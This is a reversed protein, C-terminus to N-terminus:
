GAWLDAFSVGHALLCGQMYRSITFCASNIEFSNKEHRFQVADRFVYM